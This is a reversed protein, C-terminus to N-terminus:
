NVDFRLGARLQHEFTDDITVLSGGGFNRGDVGLEVETGGIYLFRYNFDFSVNESFRYGVGAMVAAAFSVSDTKNGAVLHERFGRQACSGPGGGLPCLKEKTIHTRDIRDWSFGLGGGVYPTWDSHEGRYFDYYANFLFVGGGISSRDQVEGNVRSGAAGTGLYRYTGEFNVHNASRWEATVDTRVFNNWYYGVGGGITVLTDKGDELFGVPLNFTGAARDRGYVLGEESGNPGGAFGAGIDGRFYWVAKFVPIPVPAPVAIPGNGYDKISSAGDDWEGAMLPGISGCFVLLSLSITLAKLKM